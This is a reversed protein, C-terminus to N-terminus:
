QKKKGTVYPPPEFTVETEKAQKALDEPTLKAPSWEAPKPNPVTLPYTDAYLKQQEALKVMLEKIKEAREPKGALDQEEHPDAQLDFLQTKDILPYRILKWRDDSISRQSDRYFTFVYDRVRPKEGRIVPALSLADVRGPKPVGTFECITPFVDM